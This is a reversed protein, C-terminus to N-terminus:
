DGEVEKEKVDFCEECLPSIDEWSLTDDECRGTPQDCEYCLQRTGPYYKSNIKAHTSQSLPLHGGAELWKQYIEDM